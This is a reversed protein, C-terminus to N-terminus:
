SADVLRAVCELCLHCDGAPGSLDITTSDVDSLPGCLDCSLPAVREARGPEAALAARKAATPRAAM